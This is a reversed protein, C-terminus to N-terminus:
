YSVGAGWIWLDSQYGSVTSTGRDWTIWSTGSLQGTFTHGVGATVTWGDQFLPDFSTTTSITGRVPSVVGNIPIIQLKSWEQWRISGFALWDTAVGSQVRLDVAQPIEASATVPFVGLLRGMSPGTPGVAFGTTDVTGSLGGYDYAASYVLSVRFAKDPIEYSAGLRWSVDEDNLDFVGLGPNHFVGLGPVAFTQLTQRSQIAEVEQYSIGGIIRAFGEGAQIKYSCTLGYDNTDLTFRVATPSYANSLGYNADAGYPQTYTALCDVPGFVHAKFGLRPVTYDGEVDVVATTAGSGDLRRVNELRRNPAVYTAGAEAVYPREDFLLDINIGNRDYGGADAAGAIAVLTSSTVLLLNFHATPMSLGRFGRRSGAGSQGIRAIVIM